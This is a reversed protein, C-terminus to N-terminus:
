LIIYGLPTCVGSKEKGKKSKIPYLRRTRAEAVLIKEHKKANQGIQLVKTVDWINFKTHRHRSVRNKRM